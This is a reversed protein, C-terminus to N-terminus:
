EYAVIPSSIAHIMPQSRTSSYPMPAAVTAIAHLSYRLLSSSYRGPLWVMGYWHHWEGSSDSLSALPATTECPMMFMGASNMTSISLRSSIRPMFSDANTLLRITIVLTAITIRIMTSPQPKMSGALWVGYMGGAVSTTSLWPTVCANPPNQPMTPAAPTTNKAYMPNSATDVAACSVMLGLRSMGIPMRPDSAIQVTSYM